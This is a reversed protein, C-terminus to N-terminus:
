TRFGCTPRKLARRYGPQLRHWLKGMLDERGCCPMGDFKYPCTLGCVKSIQQRLSEWFCKEKVASESISNNNVDDIQVSVSNGSGRLFIIPYTQSTRRFEQLDSVVPELAPFRSSIWKDADDLDPDSIENLMDKHTQAADLFSPFTRQLDTENRIFEPMGALRYPDGLLRFLENIVAKIEPNDLYITFLEMLVFAQDFGGNRTLLDKSFLVFFGFYGEKVIAKSLESSVAGRVEDAVLLQAYLNAVTEEVVEFKQVSQWLNTNTTFFETWLQRLDRDSLQPATTILELIRHVKDAQTNQRYASYMGSSGVVYHVLEHFVSFADKEGAGFQSWAIAMRKAISIGEKFIEGYSMTDQGEIIRDIDAKGVALVEVAPEFNRKQDCIFIARKLSPLCCWRNPNNIEPWAPIPPSNSLNSHGSRVDSSSEYVASAAKLPVPCHYIASPFGQINM